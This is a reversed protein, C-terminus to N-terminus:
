ERETKKSRTLTVGIAVLFLIRLFLIFRPANLCNNWVFFFYFKCTFTELFCFVNCLSLWFNIVYFLLSLFHFFFIFLRYFIYLLGIITSRAIFRQHISGHFYMGWTKTFFFKAKCDFMCTVQITRLYHWQM